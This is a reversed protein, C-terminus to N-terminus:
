NSMSRSSDQSIKKISDNPKTPSSPPPRPIPPRNAINATLPTPQYVPVVEKKQEVLPAPTRPKAVVGPISSSSSNARNVVAIRREFEKLQAAFGENPNVVVRKYKLFNLATEYKWKQSKMIYALM